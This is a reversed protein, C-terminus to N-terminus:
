QAGGRAAPYTRGANCERCTRSGDAHIVHLTTRQEALCKASVSLGSEAPWTVESATSSVATRKPTRGVRHRGPRVASRVAHVVLYVVLGVLWLAAAAVTFLGICVFTLTTLDRPIM